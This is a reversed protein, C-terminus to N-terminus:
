KVQKLVFQVIAFSALAVVLGVAGWIIAMRAKAMKGPDGNSTAMRIAGVIIAIVAVVGVIDIIVEFISSAVGEVSGDSGCVAGYDGAASDGCVGGIDAKVPMAWFGAFTMAAVMIALIKKKM